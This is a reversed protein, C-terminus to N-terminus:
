DLSRVEQAFNRADRDQDPLPCAVKRGFRMRHKAIFRYIRDRIPVPIWVVLFYIIKLPLGLDYLIQLVANSKQYIHHNKVYIVSHGDLVNENDVFFRSAKAQLPAIAIKKKRDWRLVLRVTRHCFRCNGDYLLILREKEM